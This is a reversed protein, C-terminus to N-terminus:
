QNFNKLDELISHSLWAIRVYHRYRGDDKEVSGTAGSQIFETIEEILEHYHKITDRGLRKDAEDRISRMQELGRSLLSMEPGLDSLHDRVYGFTYDVINRIKIRFLLDSENALFISATIPKKQQAGRDTDEATGPSVQRKDFVLASVVKEPANPKAKKRIPMAPM